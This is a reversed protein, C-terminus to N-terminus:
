EKDYYHPSSKPSELNEGQLLYVTKKTRDSSLLSIQEDIRKILEAKGKKTGLDTVIANDVLAYCDFIDYVMEESVKAVFAIEGHEILESETYFLINDFEEDSLEDAIDLHENEGEISDEEEETIKEKNLIVKSREIYKIWWKDIFVKLLKKGKTVYTKKQSETLNYESDAMFKTEFVTRSLYEYFFCDTDKTSKGILYAMYSIFDDLCYEIVLSDDSNRQLPFEEYLYDEMFTELKERSM